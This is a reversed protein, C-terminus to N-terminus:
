PVMGTLSTQAVHLSSAASFRRRSAPVVRRAADFSALEVAVDGEVADSFLM